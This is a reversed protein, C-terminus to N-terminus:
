KEYIKFVAPKGRYTEILAKLDVYHADLLFINQDNRLYKITELSYDIFGFYEGDPLTLPEDDENEFVRQVEAVVTLIDTESYGYLCATNANIGFHKFKGGDFVCKLEYTTGPAQLVEYDKESFIFENYSGGVKTYTINHEICAKRLKDEDVAWNNLEDACDFISTVEYRFFKMPKVRVYNLFEELGM